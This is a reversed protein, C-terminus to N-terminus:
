RKLTLQKKLPCYINKCDKNDCHFGKFELCQKALKLDKLIGKKQKKLERYLIKLHIKYYNPTEKKGIKEGLDKSDFEMIKSANKIEKRIEEKM